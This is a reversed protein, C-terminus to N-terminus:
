RSEDNKEQKKRRRAALPITVTEALTAVVFIAFGAYVVVAAELCKQGFGKQQSRRFEESWPEMAKRRRVKKFKFSTLV